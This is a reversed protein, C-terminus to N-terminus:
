DTSRTAEKRPFLLLMVGEAALGVFIGTALSSLDRQSRNRAEEDVDTVRIDVPSGPHQILFSWGNPYLRYPDPTVSDYRWNGSDIDIHPEVEVGGAPFHLDSVAEDELPRFDQQFLRYPGKATTGLHLGEIDIFTEGHSSFEGVLVLEGPTDPDSVVVEATGDSPGEFGEGLCITLAFPAPPSDSCAPVETGNLGEVERATGTGAFEIRYRVQEPGPALAQGLVIRLSTPDSFTTGHSFFVRTDAPGDSVGVKVIM